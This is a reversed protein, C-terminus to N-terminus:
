AALVRWVMVGFCAGGRFFMNGRIEKASQGLQQLVTGLLTGGDRM